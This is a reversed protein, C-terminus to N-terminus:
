LYPPLLLVLASVQWCTLWTLFSWWCEWRLSIKIIKNTAEEKESYEKSGLLMLSLVNYSFFYSISIAGFSHQKISYNSHTSLCGTFLLHWVPNFNEWRCKKWSASVFPLSHCSLLRRCCDDVCSYLGYYSYYLFCVTMFAWIRAETLDFLAWTSPPYVKIDGSFDM